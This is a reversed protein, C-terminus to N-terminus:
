KTKSFSLKNKVTITPLIQGFRIVIRKPSVTRIHINIREEKKREKKREEKKRRSLIPPIAQLCLEESVPLAIEFRFVGNSGPCTGM